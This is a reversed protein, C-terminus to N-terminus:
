STKSINFTDISPLLPVDVAPVKMRPSLMETIEHLHLRDTDDSLMIQRRLDFSKKQDACAEVSYRTPGLNPTYSAIIHNRKDGLSEHLVQRVTSSM